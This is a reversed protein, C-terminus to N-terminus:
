KGALFVKMVKLALESIKKRGGRSIALDTAGLRKRKKLISHDQSNRGM